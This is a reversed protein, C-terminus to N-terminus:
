VVGNRPHISWDFTWGEWSVHNGDKVVLGGAGDTLDAIGRQAPGAHPLFLLVLATLWFVALRQSMVYGWSVPCPRRFPPRPVWGPLSRPCGGAYATRGASDLPPPPRAPIRM